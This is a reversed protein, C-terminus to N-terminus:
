LARVFFLLLVAALWNLPDNYSIGADLLINIAWVLLAPYVILKGILLAVATGIINKNDDYITM